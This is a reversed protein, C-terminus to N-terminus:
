SAETAHSREGHGIAVIHAVWKVGGGGGEREPSANGWAVDVLGVRQASTWHSLSSQHTSRGGEDEVEKLRAVGEPCARMARGHRSGRTATRGTDASAKDCYPAHM